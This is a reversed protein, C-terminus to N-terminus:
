SVYSRRIVKCETGFKSISEALSDFDSGHHLIRLDRILENYVTSEDKREETLCYFSGNIEIAASIWGDSATTVHLNVSKIELESPFLTTHHSSFDSRTLEYRLCDDIEITEGQERLYWMYSAVQLAIVGFGYRDRGNRDEFTLYTGSPDIDYRFRDSNRGFGISNMHTVPSISRKKWDRSSVPKSGINLNFDINKNSNRTAIAM